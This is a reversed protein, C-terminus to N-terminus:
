GSAPPTSPPSGTTETRSLSITRHFQSPFQKAQEPEWTARGPQPSGSQRQQRTQGAGRLRNHVGVTTGHAQEAGVHGNKFHPLRPLIQGTLHNGGLARQNTKVQLKVGAELYGDRQPLKGAPLVQQSNEEPNRRQGIEVMRDVEYLLDPHGLDLFVGLAIRRQVAGKIQAFALVAHIPQHAVTGLPDAGLEPLHFRRQVAFLALHRHHNRRM